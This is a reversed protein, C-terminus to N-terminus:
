GYSAETVSREAMGTFIGAVISQFASSVGSRVMSRAACAVTVDMMAGTGMVNSATACHRRVIRMGLVVTGTILDKFTAGTFSDTKLPCSAQDPVYSMKSPFAVELSDDPLLLM